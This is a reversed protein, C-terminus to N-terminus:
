LFKRKVEHTPIMCSERKGFWSYRNRAVIGYVFDRIPKPIITFIYLIPWLGSLNKAILLAATSKTFVKSSEILIFSNESLESLGLQNIIKDGESSQISAFRFRDKRDRKIIFNVSGNCLNCVGDFLIVSHELKVAM